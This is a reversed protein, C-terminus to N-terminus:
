SVLRRLLDDPDAGDGIARFADSLKLMARRRRAADHVRAVLREPHDVTVAEAVLQRVEVLLLDTLVAVAGIRASRSTVEGQEPWPGIGVLEACAEVVRRATLDYIDALDLQRAIAQYARDAAVASGALSREASADYPVVVPVESTLDIAPSYARLGEGTAVLARGLGTLLEPDLTWEGTLLMDLQLRVCALRDLVDLQVRAWPEVDDPLGGSM